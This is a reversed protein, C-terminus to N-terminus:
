VDLRNRLRKWAKRLIGLGEAAELRETKAHPEVSIGKLMEMAKSDRRIGHENSVTFPSEGKRVRKGAQGKVAIMELQEV